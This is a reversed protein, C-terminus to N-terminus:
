HDLKLKIKEIIADMKEKYWDEWKQDTAEQQWLRYLVHRLKQSPTKQHGAMLSAEEVKAAVDRIINEHSFLIKVFEGRLKILGAGTEYGAEQTGIVVKLSGDSRTSISEIIGAFILSM